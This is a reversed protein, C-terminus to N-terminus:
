LGLELPFTNFLLVGLPSPPTQVRLELELENVLQEHTLRNKRDLMERRFVMFCRELLERISVPRMSRISSAAHLQVLECAVLTSTVSERVSADLAVAALRGRFAEYTEELVVYFPGEPAAAPGQQWAIARNPQVPERWDQVIGPLRYKNAQYGWTGGAAAASPM